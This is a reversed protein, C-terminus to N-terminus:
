ISSAARAFSSFSDVFKNTELTCKFTLLIKLEAVRVDTKKKNEKRFSFHVGIEPSLRCREDLQKALEAWESTDLYQPRAGILFFM